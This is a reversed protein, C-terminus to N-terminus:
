HYHNGGVFHGSRHVKASSHLATLDESLGEGADQAVGRLCAEEAEASAAAFAVGFAVESSERM